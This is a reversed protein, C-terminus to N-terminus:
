GVPIGEVQGVFQNYVPATSIVIPLQVGPDISDHYTRYSDAWYM